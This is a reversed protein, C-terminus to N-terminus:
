DNKQHGKNIGHQSGGTGTDIVNNEFCVPCNCTRKTVARESNERIIRKYREMNAAKKNYRSLRKYTGSWEIEVSVDKCKGKVRGPFANKKIHFGIGKLEKGGRFEIPFPIRVHPLRKYLEPALVIHYRIKVGQYEGEGDLCYSLDEQQKFCDPALNNIWFYVIERNGAEKRIQAYFDEYKAKKM